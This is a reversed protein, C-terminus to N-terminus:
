CLSSEASHCEALDVRTSEVAQTMEKERQLLKLYKQLGAEREELSKLQRTLYAMTRQEDQIQRDTDGIKQTADKLMALLQEKSQRRLDGHHLRLEACQSDLSKIEKAMAQLAASGTGRMMDEVQKEQDAVISELDRKERFLRNVEHETDNNAQETAQFAAITEDL